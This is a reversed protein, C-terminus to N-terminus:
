VEEAEPPKIRKEDLARSSPMWSRPSAIAVPAARTPRERTPPPPRRPTPPSASSSARPDLVVSVDEETLEFRWTSPASSALPAATNNKGGRPAAHDTPAAPTAKAVVYPADEGRPRIAVTKDAVLEFARAAGRAREVRRVDSFPFRLVPAGLADPEFALSRSCLRLRGRLAAGPRDFPAPLSSAGPPPRLVSAHDALYDEGDDLHLLSFRAFAECRATSGRAGPVGVGPRAGGAAM